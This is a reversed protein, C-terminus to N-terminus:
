KSHPICFPLFLHTHSETQRSYPQAKKTGTENPQHLGNGMRTLNLLFPWSDNGLSRRFADASASPFGIFLAERKGNDM